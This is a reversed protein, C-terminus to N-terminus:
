AAQRRDPNQAVVREALGNFFTRGPTEIMRYTFRAAVVVAILYGFLALDLIAPDIHGVVRAGGPLLDVLERGLPKQVASSPSPLQSPLPSSHKSSKSHSPEQTSSKQTPLPSSHKSSKSQSPTQVGVWPSHTSTLIVTSAQSPSQAEAGSLSFL